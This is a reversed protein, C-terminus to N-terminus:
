QPIFFTFGGSILSKGNNAAAPNKPMNKYMHSNLVPVFMTADPILPKIIADAGTNVNISDTIISPSFTRGRTQAPTKHLRDPMKIM